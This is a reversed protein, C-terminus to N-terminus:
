SLVGKDYVAQVNARSELGQFQISQLLAGVVLQDGALCRQSFKQCSAFIWLDYYTWSLDLSMKSSMQICKIVIAIPLVQWGHNTQQIADRDVGDVGDQSDMQRCLKDLVKNQEQWSSLLSYSEPHATDMTAAVRHRHVYLQKNGAHIILLFMCFGWCRFGLQAGIYMLGFAFSIQMAFYWGCSLPFFVKSPKTHICTNRIQHSLGSAVRHSPSSPFSPVHQACKPAMPRLQTCNKGLREGIRMQLWKRGRKPNNEPWKPARNRM